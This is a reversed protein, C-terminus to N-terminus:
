KDLTIQHLQTVNVSCQIICDIIFEIIWYGWAYFWCIWGNEPFCYDFLDDTNYPEGWFEYIHSPTLM